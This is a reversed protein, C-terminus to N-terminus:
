EFNKYIDTYLTQLYIIISSCIIGGSGYNYEIWNNEDDENFHIGSLGVREFLDMKQEPTIRNWTKENM